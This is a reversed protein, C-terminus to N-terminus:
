GNQPIEKGDKDLIVLVARGAEIDACIKDAKAKDEPNAPGAVVRLYAKYPETTQPMINM